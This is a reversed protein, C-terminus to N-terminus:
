SVWDKLNKRMQAGQRLFFTKKLDSFFIESMYVEPQQVRLTKGALFTKLSECVLDRM